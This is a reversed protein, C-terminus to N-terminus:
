DLFCSRAASAQPVRPPDACGNGGTVTMAHVGADLELAYGLPKTVEFNEAVDREAARSTGGRGDHTGASAPFRSQYPQHQM